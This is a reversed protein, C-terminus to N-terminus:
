KKPPHRRPPEVLWEKARAKSIMGAGLCLPCGPRPANASCLWCDTLTPQKRIHEDLGPTPKKKL